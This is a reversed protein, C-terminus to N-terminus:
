QLWEETSETPPHFLLTSQDPTRISINQLKADVYNVYVVTKLWEM